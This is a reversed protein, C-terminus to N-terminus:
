GRVERDWLRLPPGVRARRSDDLEDHIYFIPLGPYLAEIRSVAELENIQSGLLLAIQGEENLLRAYWRDEETKHWVEAREFHHRETPSGEGTGSGIADPSGAAPSGAPEEVESPSPETASAGMPESGVVNGDSPEGESETREVTGENEAHEPSAPPNEAELMDRYNPVKLSFNRGIVFGTQWERRDPDFSPWVSATTIHALHAALDAYLRFGAAKAKECFVIDESRDTYEYWPPELAALVDRHILMGATGGAELEVLGKPERGEFDIPLYQREADPKRETYTVPQFPYVRTLCIPVVLPVDHALLRKCLDPAFAHDDDMFWLHSYGEDLTLQALANRAGCWDGGILWEVKWGKPVDLQTVCAAFESFRAADNAIIGVLGRTRVKPPM